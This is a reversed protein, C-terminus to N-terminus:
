PEYYTVFRFQGKEVVGARAGQAQTTRIGLTSQRLDHEQKESLVVGRMLLFGVPDMMFTRRVSPSGNLEQEIVAFDIM